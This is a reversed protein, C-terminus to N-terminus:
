KEPMVNAQITVTVAGEPLDTNIKLEKKFEGVQNLVCRLTVTQVTAATPLPPIGLEIGNGIGEVDTVRFPKSAKVVVRRTLPEGAKVTGLTLVDPSVSLAAQVTAEVLVPVMGANPDNTKLYVYDKITGAPADPKLTVKLRYGIQGPRRYLDSLTAEFPLEKGVVVEKVQWNLAGAYEIDITQAAPQGRSVTGFTVQGPNFVIDQRSVASIRLECSSVFEPGVSIRVAVTKTGTFRRADMSVDITASERPELIRKSANATVCGCGSQIGTIEMRVAYINTIPFRHYLQAGHPVTGFDKIVGDKFMKEAWGQANQAPAAPAALALVLMTLIANRM